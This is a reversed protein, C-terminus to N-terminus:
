YLMKYPEYDIKIFIYIYTLLKLSLQWESKRRPKREFEKKIVLLKNMVFAIIVEQIGVSGSLRAFIVCNIGDLFTECEQGAFLFFFFVRSDYSFSSKFTIATAL